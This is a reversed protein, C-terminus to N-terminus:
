IIIINVAAAVFLLAPPCLMFYAYEFFINYQKPRGGQFIDPAILPL